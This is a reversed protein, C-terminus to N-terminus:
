PAWLPVQVRVGSLCPIKLGEHRGNWWRPLNIQIGGQPRVGLTSGNKAESRFPRVDVM